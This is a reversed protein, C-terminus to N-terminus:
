MNRQFLNQPNGFVLLFLLDFVYFAYHFIVFQWQSVTEWECSLLGAHLLVFNSLYRWCRWAVLGSGRVWLTDQLFFSFLLYLVCSLFFFPLLVDLLEYEWKFRNKKPPSSLFRKIRYLLYTVIMYGAFFQLGTVLYILIIVSRRPHINLTRYARSTLACGPVRVRRPGARGREMNILGLITSLLQLSRWEM